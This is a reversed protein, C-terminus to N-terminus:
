CSMLTLDNNEWTGRKGRYESTKPETLFYRGIAHIVQNEVSTPNLHMDKRGCTVKSVVGNHGIRRKGRHTSVRLLRGKKVSPHRYYCTESQMAVHDLVFGAKKVLQIALDYAVMYDLRSM